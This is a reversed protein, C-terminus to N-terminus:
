LIQALAEVFNYYDDEIDEIKLNSFVKEKISNLIKKQEENTRINNTNLWKTLVTIKSNANNLADEEINKILDHENMIEQLPKKFAETKVFDEGTIASISSDIEDYRKWLGYLKQENYQRQEQKAPDDNDSIILCERNALEILSAINKIGKIGKSHCLGVTEFKSKISEECKDSQIAVQFLKKDRWGEFIINKPKLIEFISHGLANYLVEEDVYDSENTELAITKEDEKKVRYHKRINNKDIMFPSHTSYIVYNHDSIKTLEDRLFRAGSPHLSIEPEDVILLADKLNDNRVKISIMLLFTVFRKFGDSRQSLEFTNYIDKICPELDDGDKRLEFEINNYEEWISCFQTTTNKAVRTLLNRLGQTTKQANIIDNEIDEYGALSFMNKLPLCIDPNEM